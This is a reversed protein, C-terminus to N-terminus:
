IERAQISPFFGQITGMGPVRFSARIASFAPAAWTARVGWSTAARSWARSAM